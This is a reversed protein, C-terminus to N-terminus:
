QSGGRDGADIDRTGAANLGGQPENRGDDRSLPRLASRGLPEDALAHRLDDRSRVGLKRFARFLHGEVTKESIGRERAIWTNGRGDAALRAIREETPSLPRLM